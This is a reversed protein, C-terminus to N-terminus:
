GKKKKGRKRGENGTTTTQPISDEQEKRPRKPKQRGGHAPQFRKLNRQWAPSSSQPETVEDLRPYPSTGGGGSSM